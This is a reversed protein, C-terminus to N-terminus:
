DREHESADALENFRRHTADRMTWNWEDADDRDPDDRDVDDALSREDPAFPELVIAHRHACLEDFAAETLLMEVFLMPDGIAFHFEVFGDPRHEVVRVFTRTTDFGAPSPVDVVSDIGEIGM